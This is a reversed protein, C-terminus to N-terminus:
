GPAGIRILEDTVEDLQGFDAVDHWESNNWRFCGIEFSFWKKTGDQMEFTYGNGGGDEVYDPNEQSVSGIRVTQLAEITKLILERETFDLAYPAEGYIICQMKVPTNEEIADFWADLEEDSCFERLSLEKQATWETTDEVTEELVDRNNRKKNADIMLGWSVGTLVAILAIICWKMFAKGRDSHM